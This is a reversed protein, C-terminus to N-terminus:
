SGDSVCEVGCRPISPMSVQSTDSDIAPQEGSERKTPDIENFVIGHTVTEEQKCRIKGLWILMTVNGRMAVDFQKAKILSEGKAYKQQSYESFPIGKEELTHEYLTRPHVGLQGAIQRGSSGSVLLTDVKQWDINAEPRGAM